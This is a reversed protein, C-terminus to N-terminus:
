KQMGQLATTDAFVAGKDVRVVVGKAIEVEVVNAALDIRKVTGYIGYGVVVPTGEALSNQFKRIEKQKKQQPRIMFFWMIVFIAVMMILFGYGGGQQQQAALYMSTIM